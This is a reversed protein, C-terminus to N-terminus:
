RCPFDDFRGCVSLDTRGAGVSLDWAVVSPTGVYPVITLTGTLRDPQLGRAAQAMGHPTEVGLTFTGPQGDWRVIGFVLVDDLVDPAPLCSSGRPSIEMFLTTGAAEDGCEIHSYVRDPPVTWGPSSSSSSTDSSGAGPASTEGDGDSSAGHGDERVDVASECASAFLLAGLLVVRVM